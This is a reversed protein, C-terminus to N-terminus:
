KFNNVRGYPDDVIIGDKNVSQLRVIHRKTSAITFASVSVSHGQSIYPEIKDFVIKKIEDETNSKKTWIKIKASKVGWDTQM